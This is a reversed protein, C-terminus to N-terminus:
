GAARERRQRKGLAAKSLDEATSRLNRYGYGRQELWEMASAEAQATAPLLDEDAAGTALYRFTFDARARLDYSLHGEPTFRAFLMDHDAAAALLEARQEQTLGEFAGRVMIRFTRDTM